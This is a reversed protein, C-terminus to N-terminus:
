IRWLQMSSIVKLYYEFMEDLISMNLNTNAFQVLYDGYIEDVESTLSFRLLEPM